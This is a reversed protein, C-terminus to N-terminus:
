LLFKEHSMKVEEVTSSAYITTTELSEHGLMKSVQEIPMGRRLAFTATTRRIRHPHAKEIGCKRGAKRIMDEVGAATFRFKDKKHQSRIGDSVFLAPNKDKRGNLYLHLTAVCRPSLFVTREKNGKGLVLVERKKFDIDSINLAVMESVRCGTSYLFEIIARDRDNKAAMRINEMEEETFPLKRTKKQKVKEVRKTPNKNILGEDNLFTFFSSLIRRENDLTANSVKEMRRMTLYARIDDTDINKLRKGIRLLSKQLVFKYYALSKESLGATAKAVFFRTILEIDINDHPVISTQRPSIEYRSLVDGIITRIDRIKNQDCLGQQMMGMTINDIIEAIMDFNHIRFKNYLVSAKNKLQKEESEM